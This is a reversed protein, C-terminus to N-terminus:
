VQIPLWQAKQGLHPFWPEVLDPIKTVLPEVMTIIQYDKLAFCPSNVM